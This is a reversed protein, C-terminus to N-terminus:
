KVLVMKKSDVFECTSSGDQRAEIRCFYVGSALNAGDFIAQYYGAPKFENVLMMVEKGAIDFIKITVFVGHSTRASPIDYKITASPNFPNPYNQHLSFSVPINAAIPSIGVPNGANTTKLIDNQIFVM